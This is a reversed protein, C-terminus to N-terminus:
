RMEVLNDVSVELSEKDYPVATVVGEKSREMRHLSLPFKKSERFAEVAATVCEISHTTCFLQTQFLDLALQISLWMKNMVSHHLGLEIEDILVVGKPARAIQLLVNFLRSVGDGLLPLPIYHRTKSGIDAYVMAHEGDVITTLSRLRPEIIKLANVIFEESGDILVRGFMQVDEKQSSRLAAIHYRAPFPPAPPTPELKKGDKDIILFYKHAQGKHRRFELKLALVGMRSSQAVAREYTHRFTLNLGSLETENDVNSLKVEWDGEIDGDGTLKIPKGFKFDKFLSIWPTDQERLFDITQGSIGRLGNILSTLDPNFAGAHLFIAELVSTMGLGNAGTGLNIQRLGELKVKELSRFNEVIFSKYM